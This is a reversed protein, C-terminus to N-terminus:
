SYYNKESREQNRLPHGLILALNSNAAMKADFQQCVQFFFLNVASLKPNTFISRKIYLYLLTDENNFSIKFIIFTQTHLM